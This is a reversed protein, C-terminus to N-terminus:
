YRSPVRVFKCLDSNRFPHSWGMLRDRHGKQMCLLYVDLAISKFPQIKYSYTLTALM